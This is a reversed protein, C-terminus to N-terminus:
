HKCNCGCTCAKQELRQHSPNFPCSEAQKRKAAAVAPLLMALLLAIIAIVIMVEVLTFGKKM